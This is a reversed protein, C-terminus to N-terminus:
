HYERESVVIEKPPYPLDGGMGEDSIRMFFANEIGLAYIHSLIWSGFNNGIDWPYDIYKGMENLWGEAYDKLTKGCDYATCRSYGKHDALTHVQNFSNNNDKLWKETDSNSMDLIFATSSSNSVFGNRYKM